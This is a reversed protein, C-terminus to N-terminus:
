AQSLEKNSVRQSPTYDQGILGKVEAAAMGGRIGEAGDSCSLAGVHGESLGM